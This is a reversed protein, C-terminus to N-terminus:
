PAGNQSSPKLSGSAYSPGQKDCEEDADPTLQIGTEIYHGNSQRQVIGTDPLM